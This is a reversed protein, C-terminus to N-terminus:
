STVYRWSARAATNTGKYVLYACAVHTGKSSHQITLRARFRHHVDFPTPAQLGSRAGESAATTACTRDDLWVRLRTVGNDAYGKFQLTVSQGTQATSPGSATVTSKAAADASASV